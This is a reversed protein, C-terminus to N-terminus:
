YYLLIMHNALKARRKERMSVCLKNEGNAFGFHDMGLSTITGTSTCRKTAQGSAVLHSVPTLSLSLWM